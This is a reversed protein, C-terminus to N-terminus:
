EVDEEGTACAWHVVTAVANYYGHNRAKEREDPDDGPGLAILTVYDGAEFVKHCAPCEKEMEGGAITKDDAPLPGFRRLSDERTAM